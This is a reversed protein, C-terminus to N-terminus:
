PAEGFFYGNKVGVSDSRVRTDLRRQFRNKLLGKEILQM